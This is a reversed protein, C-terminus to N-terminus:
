KRLKYHKIARNTAMDLVGEGKDNKISFDAKAIL